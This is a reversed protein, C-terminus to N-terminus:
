AAEPGRGGGVVALARRPRMDSNGLAIATGTSRGESLAPLAVTVLAHRRQKETAGINRAREKLAKNILCGQRPSFNLHIVNSM